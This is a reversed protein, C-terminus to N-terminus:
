KQIYVQPWVLEPDFAMDVYGKVYPKRLMFAEQFFMFAAPEDDVLIKQAQDLLDLRKKPDTELQAQDLLKDFQPNSYNAHNGGAGTKFNPELFNQPDPYDAGWGIFVMQFDNSKYRSQLTKSDTPDLQIDIGLNQKFQQQLFQAMPPNNGANNYTFTIPPLGQGNAFGAAALTQKAKAADFKFQTGLSENYGPMGPPVWSLAPKNIGQFVGNILADRDFAMAFAQRVQKNDFPAKKNNMGISFTTLRPARVTENKLSPDNQVTKTLASPVAVQDLEGAKYANFAQNADEIMKLTITELKPKDTGSYKENRTLTIHDKHQWEKLVFPGNGILNGAETWKDGNKEIVDQRLPYAGWLAMTQLFVADPQALQVVLTQDDPTSVGIANLAASLGPDDPKMANAAEAGKIGTFFSAYDGSQGPTVARRLAYAFNKSTVPQGDSFQQNPKIKFTYTTGDASVGGNDKTPIQTALDAALNLKTDYTFLGRWLMHIVTVEGVFSARSPDITDPEGGLNVTFEQKGSPAGAAATTAAAAPSGSTTAAAQPSSGSPATTANSTTKNNNSSGCAVAFLMTMALTVTLLGGRRSIQM